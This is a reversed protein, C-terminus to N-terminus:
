VLTHEALLNRMPPSHMRSPATKVEDVEATFLSVLNRIAVCGFEFNNSLILMTHVDPELLVTQKWVRLWEVNSM